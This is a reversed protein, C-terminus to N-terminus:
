GRKDVIVVGVGSWEGSWKECVRVILCERVLVAASLGAALRKISRVARCSFSFMFDSRCSRADYALGPISDGIADGLLLGFQEGSGEGSAEGSAEGDEDGYTEAVL